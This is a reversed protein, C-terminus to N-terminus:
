IAKQLKQMGKSGYLLEEYKYIWNHIKAVKM